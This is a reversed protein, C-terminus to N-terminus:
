IKIVDKGELKLFQCKMGIEIKKIKFLLMKERFDRLKM